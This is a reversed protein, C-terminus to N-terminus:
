PKKQFFQFKDKQDCWTSSRGGGHRMSVEFGRLNKMIENFRENIMVKNNTIKEMLDWSQETSLNFSSLLLLTGIFRRFEHTSTKNLGMRTLSENLYEIIYELGSSLLYTFLNLDNVEFGVNELKLRLQERIDIIYDNIRTTLFNDLLASKSTFLSEDLNATGILRWGAHATLAVPLRPTTRSVNETGATTDVGAVTFAKSNNKTKPRKKLLSSNNIKQCKKMMSKPPAVSM